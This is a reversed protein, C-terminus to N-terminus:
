CTSSKEGLGHFQLQLYVNGNNHMRPADIQTQFLFFNYPFLRSNQMCFHTYPGQKFTM